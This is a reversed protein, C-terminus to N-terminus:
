NFLFYSYTEGELTTVEMKVLGEEESFVVIDVGMVIPQHGKSDNTKRIMNKYQEFVIKEDDESLYYLKNNEIKQFTMEKIESEIQIKGILLELYNDKTIHNDVQTIMSLFPKLFLLLGMLVVLSILCEALTFGQYTILIKKNRLM